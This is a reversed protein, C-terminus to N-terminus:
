RKIPRKSIEEMAAQVLKRSRARARAIVEEAPVMPDAADRMIDQPDDDGGKLARTVLKVLNMPLMGSVDRPDNHASSV